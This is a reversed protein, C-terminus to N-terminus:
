RSPCTGENLIEFEYSSCKLAAMSCLDMSRTRQNRILMLCFTYHQVRPCARAAKCECKKFASCTEWEYCTNLGCPEKISSKSSMQARFRVWELKASDEQNCAHDSVFFLPDGHCRGAHFSCLSMSVMVGIYAARVSFVSVSQTKYHREQVVSPSLFLRNSTLAACTLLYLLSGPSVTAAGTSAEHLLPALDPGNCDLSVTEGVRYEEKNPLLMMGDPIELPLCIKRVCRGSPQSWTGDPLCNIFQFGELEFGTYCRFEEDEGFSYYLKAKEAKTCPPVPPASGSGQLIVELLGCIHMHRSLRDSVSKMFTTRPGSTWLHPNHKCGLVTCSTQCKGSFVLIPLNAVPARHEECIFAPECQACTVSTVSDPSATSFTRSGAVDELMVQNPLPDTITHPPMEKPPRFACGEMHEGSTAQSGNPVSILKRLVRTLGYAPATPTQSMMDREGVGRQVVSQGPTPPHKLGPRCAPPDTMVRLFSNPPQQPRLCGQVGPPLEEPIGTTYEDDNDCTEQSCTFVLAPVYLLDSTYDSARRECNTGFTGLQCICKCETGSLVPEANNPCPACRCSDFEEQYQLLAKRLHRRKTKACPIGRVLDIIPHAQMEVVAPNDLLSKAWNKYSEKDPSPKQREFVLAQAERVRGGQVMSFSKESAKIYSGEYKETIRTDTCRHVRRVETYLIITWTSDRQLCDAFHQETQGSSKFEERNYQYLLDYLGGLTGSGYYHTGFRQFIDRYLAYNYELPLAHLFQLFPLSLVLGGPDRVKFKSVPLVQHVRFFKSDTQKSAEFAEKNNTIDVDSRYGFGFILISFLDNKSYSSSSHSRKMSIPEAHVQQPETSFDEVAGVKIEFIEFNHPVRHYLLTSPPRKINCDEGMFMNDLVAGRPRQALADFGNQVLDAGPAVRKEAPCVIKFTVCDREDSNDGCDNQKNCTLAPKICRGALLQDTHHFYLQSLSLFLNQLTIQTNRAQKKACPSCDSWPGFETLLCNIPCLQENCGRSEQSPCIQRCSSKWYYDDYTFTRHGDQRVQRVQAADGDHRVFTEGVDLHRVEIEAAHRLQLVQLLRVVIGLHVQNKLPLPMTERLKSLLNRMERMDREINEIDTGVLWQEQLFDIPSSSREELFPVDSSEDVRFDVKPESDTRKRHLQLVGLLCMSKLMETIFMELCCQLQIFLRCIEPHIEGDEPGSVSIVALDQHAARAMSCGKSRTHHMQARLAPCDASIEGVSIVQERYLAVLTNFEQVTMRSGDVAGEASERREPQTQAVKGVPFVIGASRPRKKRGYPASCM